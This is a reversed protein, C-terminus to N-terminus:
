FWLWGFFTSGWDNCYVRTDLILYDISHKNTHAEGETTIKWKGTHGPRGQPRTTLSAATWVLGSETDDVWQEHKTSSKLVSWKEFKWKFSNPIQNFFFYTYTNNLLIIWYTATLCSLLASGANSGCRRTGNLHVLVPLNCLHWLEHVGLPFHKDECCNPDFM